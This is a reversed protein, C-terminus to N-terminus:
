DRRKFLTDWFLLLAIDAIAVAIFVIAITQATDDPIGLSERFVYVILGALVSGLALAAFMAKVSLGDHSQRNDAM